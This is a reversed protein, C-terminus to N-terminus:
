SEDTKGAEAMSHKKGSRAGAVGLVIAFGVFVLCLVAVLLESVMIKELFNLQQSIRRMSVRVRESAM